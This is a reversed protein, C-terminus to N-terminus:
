GRQRTQRDLGLWSHVHELMVGAQRGAQRDAQRGTQEERCIRSTRPMVPLCNVSASSSDSRGSMVHPQPPCYQVM